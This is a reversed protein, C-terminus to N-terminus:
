SPFSVAALEPLQARGGAAPPRTRLAYSAPSPLACDLSVALEGLVPCGRVVALSSARYHNREELGPRKGANCAASNPSVWSGNWPM